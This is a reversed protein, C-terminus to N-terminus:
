ATVAGSIEARVIELLGMGLAGDLETSNEGGRRALAAGVVELLPRRDLVWRAAESKATHDALHHFWWIRCATFVMLEGYRAEFGIRQWDALQADGVAV